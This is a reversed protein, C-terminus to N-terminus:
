KYHKFAHSIFVHTNNQIGKNETPKIIKRTHQYNTM